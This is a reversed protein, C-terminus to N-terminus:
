EGKKRAAEILASLRTYEEQTLKAGPQMLRAAVARELSGGFFTELVRELASKAAKDRALCPEYVYKGEVERHRLHGKEELIRLLARVASYSPPATLAAQVDSVTAAGRAFLIDMIERERRSLPPLPRRGM